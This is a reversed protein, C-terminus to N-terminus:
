IIYKWELINFFKFNMIKIENISLSFSPVTEYINIMKVYDWMTMSLDPLM